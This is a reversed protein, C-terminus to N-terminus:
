AAAFPVADASPARDDVTYIDGNFYLKANDTM